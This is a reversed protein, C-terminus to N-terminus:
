VGGAGERPMVSFIRKGLVGEAAKLVPDAPDIKAVLMHIVAWQKSAVDHLREVEAKMTRMEGEMSALRADNAARLREEAAEILQERRDLRGFWASWAWKVAAGVGGFVAMIRGVTLLEDKM